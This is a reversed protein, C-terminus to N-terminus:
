WTTSPTPMERVLVAGDVRNHDDVRTGMRLATIESRDEAAVPLWNAQRLYAEPRKLIKRAYKAPKRRYKKIYKTRLHMSADFPVLSEECISHEAQQPVADDDDGDDDNSSSEPVSTAGQAQLTKSPTSQRQTPAQEHVHPEASAAVNTKTTFHELRERAQKRLFRWRACEEPPLQTDSEVPSSLTAPCTARLHAETTARGSQEGSVHNGRAGLQTPERDMLVRLQRETGQATGSGNSVFPQEASSSTTQRAEDCIWFKVSGHVAGLLLESTSAEDLSAWRLTAHRRSEVNIEAQVVKNSSASANSSEAPTLVLRGGRPALLASCDAVTYGDLDRLSLNPPLWGLYADSQHAGLHMIL